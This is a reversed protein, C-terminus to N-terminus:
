CILVVFYNRFRAFSRRFELFSIEGSVWRSEFRLSFKSFCLLILPKRSILTIRGRLGGGFPSNEDQFDIMVCQKEIM